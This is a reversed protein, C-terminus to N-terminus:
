THKSSIARCPSRRQGTHQPCISANCVYASQRVKTPVRAEIQTPKASRLTGGHLISTASMGGVWARRPRMGWVHVWNSPAQMFLRM